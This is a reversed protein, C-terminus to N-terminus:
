KNTIIFKNDKIDVILTTGVKMNEDILKHAILNEINKTIYRKIPRAGYRPDYAEEIIKERVTNTIEVRIYNQQLRDNLEKIIWYFLVAVLLLIINFFSWLINQLANISFDTNKVVEIANISYTEYVFFLFILSVFFMLSAWFIFIKKPDFYKQIVWVPSDALFAVLNWLWLFIWVFLPSRLELLFFFVLTFHFCMWVFLSIFSYLFFNKRKIEDFESETTIYNAM